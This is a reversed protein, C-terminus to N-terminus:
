ILNSKYDPAVTLCGVNCACERIPEHNDMMRGESNGLFFLNRSYNYHDNEWAIDKCSWRLNPHNKCTLIPM